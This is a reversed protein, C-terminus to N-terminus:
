LSDYPFWKTVALTIALPLEGTTAPLNVIGPLTATGSRTGGSEKDGWTPPNSGYEGKSTLLLGFLKGTIEGSALKITIPFSPGIKASDLAGPYLVM